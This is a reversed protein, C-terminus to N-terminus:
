DPHLNPQSCVPILVNVPDTTCGPSAFFALSEQQETVELLAKHVAKVTLMGSGREDQLRHSHMGHREHYPRDLSLRCAAVLLSPVEMPQAPFPKHKLGSKRTLM